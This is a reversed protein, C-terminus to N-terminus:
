MTMLLQRAAAMREWVFMKELFCNKGITLSANDAHLDCHSLFTTGSGISIGSFGSLDVATEMDFIGSDSLFHRYVLRRLFVGARSPLHKLLAHLIDKPIHFIATAQM